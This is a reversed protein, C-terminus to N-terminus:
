ISERFEPILTGGNIKGDYLNMFGHKIRSEMAGSRLLVWPETKSLRISLTPRM